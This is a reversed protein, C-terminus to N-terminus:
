VSKVLSCMTRFVGTVLRLGTDKPVDPKVYSLIYALLAKHLMDNFDEAEKTKASMIQKFVEFGRQTVKIRFEDTAFPLFNTCSTTANKTAEVPSTGTHDQLFSNLQYTLLYLYAFICAEERPNPNETVASEPRIKMLLDVGVNTVALGIARSIIESQEIALNAGALQEHACVLLGKLIENDSKEAAIFFPSTQSTNAM